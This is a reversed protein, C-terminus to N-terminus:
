ATLSVLLTLIMNYLNAYEIVARVRGDKETYGLKINSDDKHKKKQQINSAALDHCEAAQQSVEPHYKFFFRIMLYYLFRAATPAM